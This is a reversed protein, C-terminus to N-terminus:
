TDNVIPTYVVHTNGGPNNPDPTVNPTDTHYGPITPTPTEGGKTPDNPDNNYTPTPADPIPQDKPDVPIIKGLEHYTVTTTSTPNTPTVTAGSVEKKDAYYGKIEPTPVADYTHSQETWTTVGTAENHEGKFTYNDQVNDKPTAKGAGEYHVTQKTAQTTDNVIP